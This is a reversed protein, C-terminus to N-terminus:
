HRKRAQVLNHDSNGITLCMVEIVVRSILCSCCRAGKMNCVNIETVVHTSNPAKLTETKEVEGSNAPQHGKPLALVQVPWALVQM